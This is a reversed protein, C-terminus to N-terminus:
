ASAAFTWAAGHLAAAAPDAVRWSDGEREVRLLRPWAVLERVKGDVGRHMGCEPKYVVVAADEGDPVTGLVNWCIPQLEDGSILTSALYRTMLEEASDTLIQAPSTTGPLEHQWWNSLQAEHDRTRKLWYEAVALPMDPHQAQMEAATTPATIPASVRLRWSEAFAKIARVSVLSTASHRDHRVLADFFERAAHEAASVSM